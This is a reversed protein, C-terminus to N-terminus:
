CSLGAPPVTLDVLYSEIATDICANLGYATHTNADVSVFIGEELTEAMRRSGEYPTAPDGTNGVVVIPGAGAGTIAVAATDLPPFSACIVLEAALTDGIQSRAEFSERQAVAADVGASDPDDACTIAFYAELDNGYSGDPRRGYYTDYLALLLAGNGRQAAALASALQPWQEEAYLAQAVAVEFVGDVLPPRGSVTAMPSSEMEALLEGFAGSADGGNSFPCTPDASCDALFAQLTQEFGAAQDLLHQSRGTTPDISGDFVAARVTDPFLTAWTAGLMTGYSFGFYSITDEGLAIRIADMDRAADATTIHDLIAGSRAVCGAALEALATRLELEEEPTDPSAEIGLYPDYEDICDVAPVSAGTGRPDWGIIDFHSLLEDGFIQDAQEAYVSGGFGPGGPNVLLAGIRQDADVARHRVVALTMSPGQPDDDDVPVELSGVDVLDNETPSWELIAPPPGIATTTVVDLVTAQPASTEPPETSAVTSPVTSPVTTTEPTTPATGPTTPGTTGRTASGGDNCGTVLGCAVVLSVAGWSVRPRM